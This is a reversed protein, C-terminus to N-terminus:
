LSMGLSLGMKPIIGKYGPDFMDYYEHYGDPPQYGIHITSSYQFGGGVYIDLFLVNWFVKQVGLTFGLSTNVIDRSYSNIYNPFQPPYTPYYPYVYTKGSTVFNGAQLFGAAYLGQKYTRNKKSLYEKLPMIYSRYQFECAIGNYGMMDNQHGFNDTRASLYLSYSRTYSKGIREVGVKLTSELFHQPSLKFITRPISTEEQAFSSLCNLVFPLTLFNKM